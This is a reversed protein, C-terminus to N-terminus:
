GALERYAELHRAAAVTWDLEAEAFARGRAAVEARRAPDALYAEVLDVMADDDDNAVVPYVSGGGYDRVGGVDTTVVPLGSALAEVLANSAGCADFPLLALHSRQYLARLRHDDLGAHWTVRPHGALERLGPTQRLRERVLLDFGLEPHRGALRTVVRALMRTNRGNQGAFLLRPPDAPGEPAPRFFDADVGHPVFRVRGPGVLAEFADLDARYLALASSLRGLNRPWRPGWQAWQGPPHHLTGVLEPPAKRWRELFRHHAELYLVHRVGGPRHRLALAFRLEAAAPVHDRRDWWGRALCYLRGLRIQEHSTWARVVALDPGHALLATALQEYGSHRGFWPIRDVLLTLRV